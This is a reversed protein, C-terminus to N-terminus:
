VCQGAALQAPPITIGLPRVEVHGELACIADVVTDGWLVTGRVGAVATPTHVEYDSSGTLFPAIALRFRGVLVELRARRSEPKLAFERLTLRSKPGITLISDDALRIEVKSKEDTEVISDLPVASGPNLHETKSGQQLRPAGNIRVVTAPADVALASSATLLSLVGVVLGAGAQRTAHVLGRRALCPALPLNSVRRKLVEGSGEKSL